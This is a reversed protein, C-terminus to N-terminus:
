QGQIGTNGDPQPQEVEGPIVEGVRDRRCALSFMGAWFVEGITIVFWFLIAVVVAIPQPMYMALLFSLAVERVGSGMLFTSALMSLTGSIAWMALIDPLVALPLTYLSRSLVYLGAGPFIWALLFAPFLPLIERYTIKVRVASGL